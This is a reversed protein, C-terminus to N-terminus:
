VNDCGSSVLRETSGPAGHDEEALTNTTDVLLAELGHVIEFSRDIGRDEWTVLSSRVVVSNGCESDSELLGLGWLELLVLSGNEVVGFCEGSTEAFALSRTTEAVVDDRAASVVVEDQDIQLVLTNVTSADLTNELEDSNRGVLVGHWAVLAGHLGTTNAHTRGCHSCTTELWFIELADTVDDMTGDLQGLTEISLGPLSCLLVTALVRGTDICEALVDTFPLLNRFDNLQPLLDLVPDTGERQRPGLTSSYVLVLDSRKSM